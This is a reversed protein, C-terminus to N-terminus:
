GAHVRRHVDQKQPHHIRSLRQHDAPAYRRGGTNRVHRRRRQFGDAQDGALLRRRRCLPLVLDGPEPKNGSLTVGTPLRGVTLGSPLSSGGSRTRGPGPACCPIPTSPKWWGAFRRPGCPRPCPCLSGLLVAGGSGSDGSGPGGAAAWCRDPPACIGACFAGSFPQMCRRQSLAPVAASPDRALREM